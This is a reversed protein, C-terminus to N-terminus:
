KKKTNKYIIVIAEQFVDRADEVTGTNKEILTKVRQSYKQYILELIKSDGNAIGDILYQESTQNNATQRKM